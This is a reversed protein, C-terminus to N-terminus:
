GYIGGCVTCDPNKKIHLSQFTMELADYVLMTGYLPTGIGLVLKIVETAQLTGITGPLAGLVGGEATSPATGPLPPEPFLCRYCPGFRADFVSVQGEFQYVSGYVYPKASSVCLDNILYRTSINDSGDVVVVYDNAICNANESGFSENFVDVQIHPNLALLRQRALGVKVQGVGDSNYIIQRNLNSADVKDYDVLGIRGIGAAALYLAVASGLGGMGVVLVSAQKIKRQGDLGFGPLLLHRSYRRMEDPSLENLM